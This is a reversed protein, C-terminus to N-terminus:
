CFRQSRTIQSLETEDSLENAFIQRIHSILHHDSAGTNTGGTFLEFLYVLTKGSAQLASELCILPETAASAIFLTSLMNTETISTDRLRHVGRKLRVLACPNNTARESTSKLGSVHCACPWSSSLRNSVEIFIFCSIM